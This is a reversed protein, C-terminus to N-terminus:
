YASKPQLTSGSLDAQPDAEAIGRGQVELIAADLGMGRALLDLIFTSTGNPCARITECGLGRSM